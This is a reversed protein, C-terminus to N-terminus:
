RMILLNAQQNGLIVQYDGIPFNSTSLGFIESTAPLIEQAIIKGTMDSVILEEQTTLPTFRLIAHDSAPNPSIHISNQLQPNEKVSGGAVVQFNSMMGMDEHELVHCHILYIGTYDTFRILVNASSSPELRVIDKWGAETVDPPNGTGHNLVQFQTGHVHIHHIVQSLNMFTWKELDGFPVVQDIRDMDFSLSNILTPGSFQFLRSNKIDKVNYATIAPLAPPIVGGSSGSKDVQFQMLDFEAGQGLTGSGQYGSFSFASSHLNVTKGQAYSSFDILIDVREAPGITATTVSVPKDILGGDNGIITFSSNDSLGIKYIRANSGNVLRFRYLTPAITLSANPTGNILITDGLFGEFSDAETPAYLLQKNTDFRKDQILLPIDFDGSPLGLSKEEDDEIILCGMMGMYTQRATGMDVHSHYFFTGARQTIPYMVDFSAGPAIPYKPHGDMPSPDHIGHWHINTNESLNNIVKVSFTDGKKIKITPAPFTNNISLIQSDTGPYIQYNTSAVTLDGGSIVPPIRLENYVPASLKEASKAFLSGLNPSAAAVIGAQAIRKIFSRRKVPLLIFYHLLNLLM